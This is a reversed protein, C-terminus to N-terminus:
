HGAAVFAFALAAAIALDFVVPIYFFFRATLAVHGLNAAICLAIM